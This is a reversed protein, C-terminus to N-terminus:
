FLLRFNIKTLKVYSNKCIDLIHYMQVPYKGQLQFMKTNLVDEPFCKCEMDNLNTLLWQNMALEFLDNDTISPNEDIFHDM